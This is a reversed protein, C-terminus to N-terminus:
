AVIKLKRLMSLYSYVALFSQIDINKEPYTTLGPDMYTWTGVAHQINTSFVDPRPGTPGHGSKESKEPGPEFFTHGCSGVTSL